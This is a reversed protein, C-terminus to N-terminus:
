GSHAGKWAIYENITRTAIAEMTAPPVAAWPDKGKDSSALKETGQIRHLRAGSNDLIDWVYVVSVGDGDGFASFYGKLIHDTSTDASARIALGTARAQAGLQRSLPTVARVPAGIIPLFRITGQSSTERTATQVPPPSESGTQAQPAIPSSASPSANGSALAQAQAQLTNQPPLSRSAGYTGTHDQTGAIESAGAMRAADAQTVPTSPMLGSGVDVKPTLADGTNCAVLCVASLIVCLAGKPKLMRTGAEMM